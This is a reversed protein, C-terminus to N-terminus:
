YYWEPRVKVLPKHATQAMLHRVKDAVEETMTGVQAVRDM